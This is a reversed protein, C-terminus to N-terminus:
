VCLTKGIDDMAEIAFGFELKGDGEWWGVRVGGM